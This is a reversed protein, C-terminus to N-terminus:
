RLIKKVKNINMSSNIPMGIKNDKLLRKKIVKKNEKKAFNYVYM